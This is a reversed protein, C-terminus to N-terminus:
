NILDKVNIINKKLSIDTSNPYNILFYGNRPPDINNEYGVYTAFITNKLMNIRIQGSNVLDSFLNMNYIKISLVSDKKYFQFITIIIKEGVYIKIIKDTPFSIVDNSDYIM